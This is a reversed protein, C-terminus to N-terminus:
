LDIIAAFTADIVKIMSPIDLTEMTDSRRHYNRNRLYATDTIMLADYGLKWYNYHDSADLRSKKVIWQPAKIKKTRISSLKKYNSMFNKVFASSGTKGALVIFNGKSGYFIKLFKVPKPYSQSNKRDDFYGIMEFSVMGYVPTGADKLSQAHVYSGAYQNRLHTEELTYAVLEIPYDFKATSLLRALELLGVVGSANDDAGENEVSDYHAGVVVLPKNKDASGFRCVVNMYTENNVQYPQYYTTDAYQSFISFIYEATQNLLPINRFSRFGETKTITTLHSVILISDSQAHLKSYFGLILLIIFIIQIKM